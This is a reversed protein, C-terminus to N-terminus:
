ARGLCVLCMDDNQRAKGMFRRVDDIIIQGLEPISKHNAAVHEKIRPITYQQGDGDLAENIGDTYLTLSEGSGLTIECQQYSVGDTIGLPIGTIDDAPSHVFGDKTRHLPSMHGANVMTVQHTAPDVVILIMTVFRQINLASLRDNLRVMAVAPDKESLLSSRAEASLKAMLLAAAV